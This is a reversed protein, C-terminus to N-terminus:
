EIFKIETFDALNDSTKAGTTNMRQYERVSGEQQPKKSKLGKDAVRHRTFNGTWVTDTGSGPKRAEPFADYPLFVEMSWFDKGRHSKSKFGKCEWTTDKLKSDWYNADPNVIFQYFEGENKGTVDLFLEVNDDWWMNGNDHGGNVTELLHPTPESMRFGFTIGDLTWLAQVATAYKAPKGQSTGAAKVFSNPRARKWDPENLKGDIVPNEGTKQALLPKFGRGSMVASEKFFDQLAPVCYAVRATTLSDGKVESQAKALLKRMREVIEPPFSAEYIGKPSFRGSPWRSQEWRNTQLAILERMTGSARGFMRRCFEDMAADVNFEPDWLVKLWCYLSIHQRPWHNGTGNIFTGVTKNRNDLYFQKAVHPYQYAAKTKHAPWCCYHWNEIPRGSIEIWRDINAQEDERIVPEKYAALGPMGCLQVQVNDPFKFGNPATTYNLYPLYIVTFGQDPWREKVERALRDVFRAMVKSAAGYQGGKDDWLKRCHECYCALEVDAPSVTISKGSIPAYVPKKGEVSNKVGELYTELTKPHGYCLVEHQRSGDKRMQFVEPRTKRLEDYRRWDPQHVLLRIPWSNGSRLFSHLPAMKIGTGNWSNSMPPWIVRMRFAPADDLWVPPVVLNRSKPISQGIQPGNEVAPPFYWRVGVYRELFESVGWNVGHANRGANNGVIFVRGQSTKIAFAEPPMKDSRLGVSAAEECDGLVIAPGDIKGKIIPLKAGTAAEIFQQLNGAGAGNRMVVISAKGQGNEVLVVPQHKPRDNFRVPNLDPAKWPPAGLAASSLLLGLVGMRKTAMTVAKKLM